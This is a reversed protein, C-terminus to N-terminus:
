SELIGARCFKELGPEIGAKLEGEAMAPFEAKMAELLGDRDRTGDLLKLFSRIVPDDLAIKAHLLTTAFGKSCAEQRANASARPRSSITVAVPARWTRLEIMKTVVLRMLLTVGDSDLAIGSGPLRRQIEDFTLAGPWAAGLEQLLAIVAPHNSEMKIGGPSTFARAGSGEAPTSATQSAFLLRQFHEAPFDRRLVREGRCLLTERYMRARMYDLTQEQKVIDDDAASELASRVDQRYTPDTPPPLLAESLYQLGHKRAHEEFEFFHVPHYTETMEDHYTVQTGSKEMKKLLEDILARYTDGEPRSEILFRLFELGGSVRREPDDIGEVSYLMMERIMKRLHGGPLANYSVFAVGNATLLEGCLALLRDRV